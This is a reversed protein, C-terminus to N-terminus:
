RLPLVEASRSTNTRSIPQSSQKRQQLITSLANQASAIPATKSSGHEQTQDSGSDPRRANERCKEIMRNIGNRTVFDKNAIRIIELNGKRAETRLASKTLRGRFFLVAAEALPIPEDDSVQEPTFVEINM